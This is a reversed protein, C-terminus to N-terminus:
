MGDSGALKVAGDLVMTTAGKGLRGEKGTITFTRSGNRENFAVTVGELKSTGDQYVYQKKFTIDVADKGDDGKMHVTRGDTTEVIAGPDTTPAPQSVAAPDRGKLERAVYVAFAIGFVAILLRINRQWRRM